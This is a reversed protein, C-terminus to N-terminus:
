IVTVCADDIDKVSHYGCRATISRLEGTLKMIADYAGEAQGEKLPDMLARGVCVGDAGLALAKFADVGSDICCDVLIELRNGVARRIEPLVMLPPVSSPQIGHHHSVIIAKAGIEVCKLADEVSLVGKVVFPTDGAAEVFARLDASSKAKMPYGTVVDYGGNGNYAHDIDVGVAFVGIEKNHRIQRIVEENKEHPKIISAVKAGTAQIREIEDDETMGCFYVAGAKKAAEALKEMGGPTVNHLHSLAATMIPTEFEEGLFTMKMDPLDSDILRSRLLIRDFYAETIQNSDM